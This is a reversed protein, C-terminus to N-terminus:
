GGRVPGEPDPAASAPRPQAAPRAPRRGGADGPGRDSRDGAARSPPVAAIARHWALGEGALGSKGEARINRKSIALFRNDALFNPSSRSDTSAVEQGNPPELCPTM